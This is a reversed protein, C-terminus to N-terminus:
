SKSLGRMLIQVFVKKVAQPDTPDDAHYWRAIWNIMGLVGNVILFPDGEMFKGQRQGRKVLDFFRNNSRTMLAVVKNQRKGSLTDFENLLLGARMRNRILYEIRAELARRLQEVPGARADIHEALYADGQEIVACLLRYLLDDKSQIYYYLSGKLMGVDRAIDEITTGHFGKTFFVKAASNLVEDLRGGPKSRPRPRQLQRARAPEPAPQTRDSKQQLTQGREGPV